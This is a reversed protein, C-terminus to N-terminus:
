LKESIVNILQTLLLKVSKEKGAIYSKLKDIYNNLKEKDIENSEVIEEIVTFSEILYEYVNSDMLSIFEDLYDVFNIKSQWFFSIIKSKRSQEFDYHLLYIMKKAFIKDNVQLFLEFILNELESNDVNIYVDVVTNLSEDNGKNILSKLAVIVADNNSNKLINLTDKNLNKKM